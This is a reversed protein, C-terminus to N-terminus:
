QQTNQCYFKVTYKNYQLFGKLPYNEIGVTPLLDACLRTLYLFRNESCSGCRSYQSPKLVGARIWSDSGLNHPSSNSNHNQNFTFLNFPLRIISFFHFTENRVHFPTQFELTLLDSESNLFSFSVLSNQPFLSFLFDSGSSLLFRIM